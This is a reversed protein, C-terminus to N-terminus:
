ILKLDKPFEKWEDMRPDDLDAVGEPLSERANWAINLHHYIHQVSKYYEEHSMGKRIRSMVIAIEEEIEQFNYVIFKTNM